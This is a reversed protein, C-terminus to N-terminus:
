SSAACREYIYVPSGPATSVAGKDGVVVMSVTWSTECMEPPVLESFGELEGEDWRKLSAVVRLSDDAAAIHAALRSMLESSFLLSSVYLCTVGALAGDPAEWLGAEACDACVFAVRSAVADPERGRAAEALRHRSPAMEVGVARRAGFDAAAQLVTRGLGSGLDAFTDDAGLGLRAALTAFGRPTIEGYTDSHRGGVAQIALEETDSTCAGDRVAREIARIRRADPAGGGVLAAGAVACLLLARLRM